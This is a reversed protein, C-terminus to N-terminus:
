YIKNEYSVIIFFLVMNYINKMHFYLYSFLIFFLDIFLLYYTSIIHYKLIFIIKKM